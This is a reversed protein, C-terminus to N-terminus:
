LKWDFDLTFMAAEKLKKRKKKRAQMERWRRYEDLDEILGNKLSSKEFSELIKRKKEAKTRRSAGSMIGGKSSLERHREPTIKDFTNDSMERETRENNAETRHRNM